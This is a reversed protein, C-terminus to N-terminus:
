LCFMEARHVRESHFEIAIASRTENLRYYWIPDIRPSAIAEPAGLLARIADQSKGRLWGLSSDNTRRSGSSPVPLWYTVFGAVSASLYVSAALIESAASLFRDAAPLLAASRARVNAISSLTNM